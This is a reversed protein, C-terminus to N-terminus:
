TLLVNVFELLKDFLPFSSILIAAKGAIEVKGALSNEGFDRCLDSTLHTILTIALVKLIIKFYESYEGEFFDRTYSIIPSLKDFAYKLIIVAAALSIILAYEAKATRLPLIMVLVTIAVACVM